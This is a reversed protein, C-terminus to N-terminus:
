HFSLRTGGSLNEVFLNDKVRVLIKVSTRWLVM